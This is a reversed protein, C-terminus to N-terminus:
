IYKMGIIVRIAEFIINFSFIVINAKIPTTNINNPTIIDSDFKSEKKNFFFFLIQHYLDIIYHFIKLNTFKKNLKQHFGCCVM